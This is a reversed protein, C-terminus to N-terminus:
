RQKQQAALYAQYRWCEAMKSSCEHPCRNDDSAHILYDKREKACKAVHEAWIEFAEKKDKCFVGDYPCCSTTKKPEPKVEIPKVKEHITKTRFEIDENTM